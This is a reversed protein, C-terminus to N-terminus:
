VTFYQYDAEAYLVDYPGKSLHYDECASV